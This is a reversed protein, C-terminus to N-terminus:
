IDSPLSKWYLLEEGGEVCMWGRCSICIANPWHNSFKFTWSLNSKLGIVGVHWGGESVLQTIRRRYM